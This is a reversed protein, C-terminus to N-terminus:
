DCLDCCSHATRVVSSFLINESSGCNFCCAGDAALQPTQKKGGDGNGSLLAPPLRPQLRPEHRTARRAVPLPAAATLLRRAVPAEPAPYFADGRVGTSSLVTPDNVGRGPTSRPRAHWPYSMPGEWFFCCRWLENDTNGLLPGTDSLGNRDSCLCVFIECELTKARM